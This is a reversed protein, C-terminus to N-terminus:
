YIFISLHYFYFHPIPRTKIQDNRIKLITM